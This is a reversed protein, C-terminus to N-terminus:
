KENKHPTDTIWQITRIRWESKKNPGKWVQQDSQNSINTSLENTTQFQKWYWGKAYKSENYRDVDWLVNGVWFLHKNPDENEPHLKEALRNTHADIVHMDNSASKNRILHTTKNRINQRHDHWKWKMQLHMHLMTLQFGIKINQNWEHIKKCLSKRPSSHVLQGFWTADIHIM